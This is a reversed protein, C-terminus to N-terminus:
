PQAGMGGAGRYIIPLPALAPCVLGLGGREELLGGGRSTLAQRLGIPTGSGNGGGRQRNPESRM